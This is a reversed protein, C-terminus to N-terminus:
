YMYAILCGGINKKEAEYHSMLGKNTSIIVLGFDRAPLFRRVYFNVKDVSVTYRPNIAKIANLNKIEIKLENNESTYDIYGSEKAIKLVDILLKSHKKLITEKKKARKANMIENLGNTVIDQNM